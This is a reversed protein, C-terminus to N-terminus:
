EFEVDILENILIENKDTLIIKPVLDDFKKVVGNKTIYKGGQKKLDPEFYTFTVEKKKFLNERIIQLKSDIILKREEDLEIRELVERGTERVADEYGTLDAFPSFQGSRAYLSMHPHKKSRHNPMNIIDDYKHDYQM